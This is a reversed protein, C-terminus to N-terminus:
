PARSPNFLDSVAFLYPSFCPLIQLLLKSIGGGWSSILTNTMWFIIVFKTIQLLSSGIPSLRSHLQHTIAM